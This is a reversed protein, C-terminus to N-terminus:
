IKDYSFSNIAKGSSDSRTYLLTRTYLQIRISKTKIDSTFPRRLVYWILMTISNSIVLMIGYVICTADCM